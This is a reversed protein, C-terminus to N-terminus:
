SVTNRSTQGGRYSAEFSRHKRSCVLVVIVEILTSFLEMPRAQSARMGAKAITRRREDSVTHLRVIKSKRPLHVLLLGSQEVQGAFAQRRFMRQQQGGFQLHLRAKSTYLNHTNQPARPAQKFNASEKGQATSGPGHACRPTKTKSTHSVTTQVGM